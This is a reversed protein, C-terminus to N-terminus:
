PYIKRMFAIDGASIQSNGAHSWDGMTISDPISYHMVSQSDYPEYTRGPVREFAFVNTEVDTRTFGLHGFYTYTKERDFPIGADPHQHEHQLGLAHGFEHVGRFEFRDSSFDTGLVMSAQHPSGTLSDTGLKSSGSGDYLPNFDVRIDGLFEESQYIDEEEMEFFDFKLNVYPLWKNAANKVAQFSHEDYTCVLVKLTKGPAWYKTHEGIGRKTRTSNAEPINDARENKAAYYSDVPDTTAITKCYYQSTM